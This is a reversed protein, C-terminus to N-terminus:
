CYLDAEPETNARIAQDANNFNPELISGKETPQVAGLSSGPPKMPKKAVKAVIGVQEIAILYIFHGQHIKAPDNTCRVLDQIPM